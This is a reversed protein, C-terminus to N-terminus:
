QLNGPRQQLCTTHLPQQVDGLLPLLVRRPHELEAALHQEGHPLVLLQALHVLLVAALLLIEDGLRHRRAVRGAAGVRGVIGVVGQVPGHGTLAAGAVLVAGHLPRRCVAAARCGRSVVLPHSM